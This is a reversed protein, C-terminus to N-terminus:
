GERSRSVMGAGQTRAGAQRKKMEMTSERVHDSQAAEFYFSRASWLIWVTSIAARTM